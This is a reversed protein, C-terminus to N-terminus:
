VYNCMRRRSNELKEVFKPNIFSYITGSDLLVHAFLHNGLLSGAVTANPDEPEGGIEICFV